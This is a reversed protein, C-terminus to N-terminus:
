PEGLIDKDTTGEVICCLLSRALLMPRRLFFAKQMLLTTLSLSLSLSLSLHPPTRTSGLVYACMRRCVCFWGLLQQLQARRNHAKEGAALAITKSGALSVFIFFPSNLSVTRTHRLTLSYLLLAQANNNMPGVSVHPWHKKGLEDNKSEQHSGSVVSSLCNRKERGFGHLVFM